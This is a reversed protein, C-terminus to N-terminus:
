KLYNENKFIIKIAKIIRITIWVLGHTGCKNYGDIIKKPINYGDLFMPVVYNIYGM